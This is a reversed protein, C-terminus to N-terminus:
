LSSTGGSGLLVNMRGAPVHEWLWDLNAQVAEDDAGHPYERHDAGEMVVLRKEGAYADIVLRQFRPPVVRDASACVFVAPATVRRANALSDLAPPVARAVVTAAVWLNWWGYHGYVLQRLPPPNHLLLGAAPRHRAVHLAAATGFSVGAVFIPRGRAEARMADYVALTASPVARVRAPGPSGGFGPYNMAWVEVSFRRWQELAQGVAREARGANGPFRLVFAAPEDDGRGADNTGARRIRATWVEVPQSRDVPVLRRGAAPCDVAHVTPHLLFRDALIPFRTPRM